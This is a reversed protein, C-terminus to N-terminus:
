PPAFVNFPLDLSGVLARLAEIASSAALEGGHNIVVIIAVDRAPALVVQSWWANNTGTHWLMRGGAWGVEGVHWGCAYDLGFPPTQLLRFTSLKVLKAKGQAAALHLAAFKSWDPISCHVTGAPGAAPQLFGDVQTPEIRGRSRSHGWPQDVEGKRGPQGFGASSMGLPEFLQHNMLTEWSHGAVQEAMLGALIYGSNSYAFTSGPKNTPPGEMIAKLLARRKQTTTGPATALLRALWVEHANLDEDPRKKGPLGSRHTLLQLLTVERYDPHLQPALEPFVDRITSEWSMKGADVLTGILTATMAKTNSGLHVQDTVRIPEPSGIKRVGVAGIELREGTLIAGILGPVDSADRIPALLRTIRADARIPPQDQALGTKATEKSKPQVFASGFCGALGQIAAAQLVSRRTTMTPRELPSILMPSFPDHLTLARAGRSRRPRIGVTGSSKDLIKHRHRDARIFIYM